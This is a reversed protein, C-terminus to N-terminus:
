SAKNSTNQCKLCRTVFFFGNSHGSEQRARSRCKSTRSNRKKTKSIWKPKTRSLKFELGATACRHRHFAQQNSNSPSDIPLALNFLTYEHRFQRSHYFSSLRSAKLNVNARLLLDRDERSVLLRVSSLGNRKSSLERITTRFFWQRIHSTSM